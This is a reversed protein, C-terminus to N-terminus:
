FINSSMICLQWSEKTELSLGFYLIIQNISIRIIPINEKIIIYIDKSHSSYRTIPCTWVMQFILAMTVSLAPGGRKVDHVKNAIFIYDENM